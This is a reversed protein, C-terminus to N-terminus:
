FSFSRVAVVEYSCPPLPTAREALNSWLDRSPKAGGDMGLTRVVKRSLISPSAKPLLNGTGGCGRWFPSKTAGPAREVGYDRLGPGPCRCRHRRHPAVLIQACSSLIVANTGGLCSKVPLPPFWDSLERVNVVKCRISQTRRSNLIYRPAM